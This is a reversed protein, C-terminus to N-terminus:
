QFLPINTYNCRGFSFGIKLSNVNGQTVRREGQDKAEASVVVNNNHEAAMDEGKRKEEGWSGHADEARLEVTGKESMETARQFLVIQLSIGILAMSKVNLFYVCSGVASMFVASKFDVM